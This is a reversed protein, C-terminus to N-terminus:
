GEFEWLVEGTRSLGYGGLAEAAELFSQSRIVELLSQLRPDDWYRASVALDYEEVGVPLFDLGLAMAASKVGLGASVRGGAVAAAVSMHTYEEDEYGAISQQDLGLRALEWDLLVRTGSGRQRNIFTVGPRTLDRLGTVNLPNGPAVMLGQERDALRLLKIPVGKLHESIAARNYLGDTGLLHTGALHCRGAKLAMLGGLSGVHASTLRYGPRHKRLLGDLVDLTNDHSGIALLAGDIEGPSRILSVPVPADAAFGEVPAPVRILGDARSLSSVTGAGRALPVAILQDDVRGLKVRLIEEMGPRSPLAQFPRAWAQPKALRERGQWRALLNLGFEEFAIVASVPYGPIGLVPKGEVAGIATPKGPMISVGHVLLEGLQSIIEATFDRSGASSGANVVVLDAPGRVAELIAARIQEPDDPVIPHVLPEGGAERVLASLVLSNFEPLRAGSALIEPTLESLPALESGSPIIAVKPRAFVPPAILGAAALAGIEYAGILTGPPLVSETAVIDEGMKRVHQWPFVAKELTITETGDASQGSVVNEVMVVADRGPPLAQGTNVWHAERGIALTKPRRESAGFSSEARIAVGDMAAGHFAPSSLLAAANGALTRGWAAELPVKEKALPSEGFSEFLLKLADDLTHLKLYVKRKM